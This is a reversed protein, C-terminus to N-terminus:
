QSNSDHLLQTSSNNSRATEIYESLVRTLRQLDTESVVSEGSTQDLELTRSWSSVIRQIKPNATANHMDQGEFM